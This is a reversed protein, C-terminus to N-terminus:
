NVGTRLISSVGYESQSASWYYHQGLPRCIEAHLPHALALLEDLVRPWDTQLQEDLLAQAAVPDELKIFCNGAQQYGIGARSM